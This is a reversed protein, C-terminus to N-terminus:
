THQYGIKAHLNTLIDPVPLLLQVEKQRKEVARCASKYVEAASSSSDKAQELQQVLAQRKSTLEQQKESLQKLM